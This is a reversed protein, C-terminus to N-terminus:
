PKREYNDFYSVRGDDRMQWESAIDAKFNEFESERIIHLNARMDGRAYALFARGRCRNVVDDNVIQRTRQAFQRVVRTYAYFNVYLRM